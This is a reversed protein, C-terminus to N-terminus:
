AVESICVHMMRDFRNFVFPTKIHSLMRKSIEIMDRKMIPEHGVSARELTCPHVYADVHLFPYVRYSRDIKPREVFLIPSFAPNSRGM